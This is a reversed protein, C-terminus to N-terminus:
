INKDCLQSVPCIECKPKKATCYTRGLRIMNIHLSLHLGSTLNKAVLEQMLPLAGGSPFIGLRKLIRRIHTDVPFLPFGFNFLLFVAATKTGIGYIDTLFNMAQEPTLLRLSQLEEETTTKLLNLIRHARLESLGAVRITEAIERESAGIIRDPTKFRRQLSEFAIDRNRDNTNQSLIGRILNWTLSKDRSFRPAGFTELLRKHLESLYEPNLKQPNPRTSARGQPM